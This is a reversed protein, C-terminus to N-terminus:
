VVSKRDLEIGQDFQVRAQDDLDDARSPSALLLLQAVAAITLIRM